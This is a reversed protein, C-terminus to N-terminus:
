EISGQAIGYSRFRRCSVQLYKVVQSLWGEPRLVAPMREQCQLLRTRCHHTCFTTRKGVQGQEVPV